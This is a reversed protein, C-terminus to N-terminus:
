ERDKTLYGAVSMVGATIWPGFEQVLTTFDAEPFAAALGGQIAGVIVGSLIVAWMKRTPTKTPQTKLTM